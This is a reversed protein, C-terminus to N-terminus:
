DNQIEGDILRTDDQYDPGTAAEMMGRTLAMLKRGLDVLQFEAEVHELDISANFEIDPSAFQDLISAVKSLHKDAEELSDFALTVSVTQKANGKLLQDLYVHLVSITTATFSYLM